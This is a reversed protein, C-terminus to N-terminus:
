DPVLILYHYKSPQFLSKILVKQDLPTQQIKLVKGVVYGRKFIGDQGSTFVLDNEQIKFDLPLSIEILGFGLTRGIGMIKGNVDALSLEKNPEFLSSIKKNKLNFDFLKGVLIFNDVIVDGARYAETVYIEGQSNLFSIELIEINKFKEKLFSLEKKQYTVSELFEIFKEQVETATYNKGLNFLSYKLYDVWSFFRFFSEKFFIEQAHLNFIFSTVLVLILIVIGKM